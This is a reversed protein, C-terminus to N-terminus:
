AAQKEKNEILTKICGAILGGAGAIAGALAGGPSRALTVIEGQLEPRTPMKSLAQAAQSDLVRGDLFAGRIEIAPVKKAWDVLEKAVDVVSDGGCAVACPGTFLSAAAAIGLKDLARKMLLNTVVSLKIGRSRLGGRMQNNDTGNVGRISVVLFESVGEFKTEFEQQVLEKVYRSM